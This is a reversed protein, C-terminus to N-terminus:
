EAYSVESFVGGAYSEFLANHEPFMDSSFKLYKETGKMDDHGLYVSLYPVSGDVPRGDRQAQAFSRIAFLHRFCHLCQGRTNAGAEKYIGAEELIRRFRSWAAGMSLPKGSVYGPFLFNERDDALGMALCYKEPMDALARDAPVARQKRNKANRVLITGDRFRVDKVQLALAEGLRLGCGYLIRLLMPIEMHVRPRTPSAPRISDAARFIKEPEADSFIYPSYTDALKPLRPLFVAHGCHRLYELFRRLSGTKGVVTSRAHSPYLTQMWGHVAVSGIEKGDAGCEVLYRDFSHLVSCDRRYTGPSVAHQRLSLCDSM